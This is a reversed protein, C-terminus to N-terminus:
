GDAAATVIMRHRYEVVFLFFQLVVLGHHAHGAAAQGHGHVRDGVGHRQDALVSDVALALAPRALRHHVDLDDHFTEGVGLFQDLAHHFLQFLLPGFLIAAKSIKTCRYKGLLVNMCTFCAEATRSATIQRPIAETACPAGWVRVAGSRSSASLSNCRVRSLNRWDMAPSECFCHVNLGAGPRQDTASTASCMATASDASEPNTCFCRM